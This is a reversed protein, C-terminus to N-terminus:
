GYPTLREVIVNEIGIALYRRDRLEGLVRIGDIIRRKM